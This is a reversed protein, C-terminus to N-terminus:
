EKHEKALAQHIRIAEVFTTFKVRVDNGLVKMEAVDDDAAPEVVPYAEDIASIGARPRAVGHSSNLALRLLHQQSQMWESLKETVQRHAAECTM